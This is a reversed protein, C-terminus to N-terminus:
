HLDSVFREHIVENMLLRHALDPQGITMNLGADDWASSESVRAEHPYHASSGGEGYPRERMLQEIDLAARFVSAV